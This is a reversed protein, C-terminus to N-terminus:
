LFKEDDPHIPVIPFADQIDTKAKLAWPGFKRLLNTVVDISDYHVKSNEEPTMRKSQIRNLSFSLDHIVRLKGPESKPVMGLPTSLLPSISPSPFPGVIRGM